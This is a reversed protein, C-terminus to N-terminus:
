AHCVPGPDLERPVVPTPPLKCDTTIRTDSSSNVPRSVMGPSVPLERNRSGTTSVSRSRPREPRYGRQMSGPLEAVGDCSELMGRHQRCIETLAMEDAAFLLLMAHVPDAHPGGFEWEEPASAGTDGLIRSREPATIGDQFELPFTRLVDASLGSARLGEATIGVNVAVHPRADTSDRDGTRRRSSTISTSLRALWRRAGEANSMTVFLYAAQPLHGYGSTIIGQIDDLAENRLRVASVDMGEGRSTPGSM